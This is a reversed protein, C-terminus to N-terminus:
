KHSKYVGGIALAGPCISLTAINPLLYFSVWCVCNCPWETLPSLPFVPEEHPCFYVSERPLFIVLNSAIAEEKAQTITPFWVKSSPPPRWLEKHGYHIPRQWVPWQFWLAAWLPASEMVWPGLSDGSTCNEQKVRFSSSTPLTFQGRIKKDYLFLWLFVTSVIFRSDPM